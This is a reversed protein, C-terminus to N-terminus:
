QQSWNMKHKRVTTRIEQFQIDFSDRGNALCDKTNMGRAYETGGNVGLTVIDKVGAAALINFAAVASFYRVRITKLRPNRTLKSAVTSNYSLLRGRRAFPWLPLNLPSTSLGDLAPDFQDLPQRSPRCNVHPHWPMCLATDRFISVPTYCDCYAEWDTFHAIDPRIVWCAHNLSMVARGHDLLDPLNDLTPGKGLILWKRDPFADQIYRV